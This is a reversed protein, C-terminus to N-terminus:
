PHPECAAGRVPTGIAAILLPVALPDSRAGTHRRSHTISDVLALRQSRGKRLGRLVWGYESRRHRKM